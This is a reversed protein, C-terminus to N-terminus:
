YMFSIMTIIKATHITVADCLLARRPTVHEDNEQTEM